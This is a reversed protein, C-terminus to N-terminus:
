GVVTLARCSAVMDRLGYLLGRGPAARQACRLLWSGGRLLGRGYGLERSWASSGSAQGNAAASLRLSRIGHRRRVRGRRSNTTLVTAMLEHARKSASVRRPRRRSLPRPRAALLTVAAAVAVVARPSPLSSPTARLSSSCRTLSRWNWVGHKELIDRVTNIDKGKLEGILKQVRESDSEIGVSSLVKEIDSASPADKGGLTLLLYAALYKM